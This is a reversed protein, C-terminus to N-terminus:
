REEREKPLMSHAMYSERRIHVGAAIQGVPAPVFLAQTVESWLRLFRRWPARALSRWRRTLVLRTGSALAVRRSNYPISSLLFTRVLASTTRFHADATHDGRNSFRKGRAGAELGSRRTGTTSAPQRNDNPAPRLAAKVFQHVISLM